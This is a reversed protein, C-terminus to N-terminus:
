RTKERRLIVDMVPELLSGVSRLIRRLKWKPMETGLLKGDKCAKVVFKKKGHGSEGKRIRRPSNCKMREKDTKKKKAEDLDAQIEERVIKRAEKISVVGFTICPDNGCGCNLNQKKSLFLVSLSVHIM